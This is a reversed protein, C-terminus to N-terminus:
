KQTVTFLVCRDMKRLKPLQEDIRYYFAFAVCLENKYKWEM